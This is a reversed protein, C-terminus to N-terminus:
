KGAAIAAGSGASVRTPQPRTARLREALTALSVAGLGLAFQAAYFAIGWQQQRIALVVALANWLAFALEAWVIQDLGLRYRMEGSRTGRKPTREFVLARTSRLSLAARLTNLMMGAGLVSVLLVRPLAQALTRKLRLQASLFLASPALGLLGFLAAVTGTGPGFVGAWMGEAPMLWLLPLYLAAVLAMWLHITYATLHLAAHLKRKV